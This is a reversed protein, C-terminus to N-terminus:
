ISQSYPIESFLESLSQADIVHQALDLLKEANLPELQLLYREPIPGFKHRLLRLLVAHEGALIGQEVGQEIGQEIGRDVGQKILREALTMVTDGVDLSIETKVTEIFQDSSSLESSHLVYNLLLVVYDFADEALLCQLESRVHQIKHLVDRARVHKMFFALMGSWYHQQLDKDVLEHTDILLFPKFLFETILTQPASIIEHMDRKGHYPKVGNFFLIPVILPLYKCKGKKQKRYNGWAGVMYELMRFPMLPDVRSQHECLLWLYAPNEAIHVEYLIDSISAKLSPAIHTNSSIRLTKWDITQRLTVPLYQQFFDQAVRIDTMASQFLKDHKTYARPM